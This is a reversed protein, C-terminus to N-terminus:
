QQKLSCQCVDYGVAAFLIACPKQCQRGCTGLCIINSIDDALGLIFFSEELSFSDEKNILDMTETFRLLYQVVSSELFAKTLVVTFSGM